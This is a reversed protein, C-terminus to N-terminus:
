KVLAIQTTRKGAVPIGNRFQHSFNHFVGNLLTQTMRSYGLSLSPPRFSNRAETLGRIEANGVFYARNRYDLGLDCAIVSCGPIFHSPNLFQLSLSVLMNRCTTRAILYDGADIATPKPLSSFIHALQQQAQVSFYKGCSSQIVQNRVGPNSFQHRLLISNKFTPSFPPKFPLRNPVCFKSSHFFLPVILLAVVLFCSLALPNM